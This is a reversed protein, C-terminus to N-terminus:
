VEWASPYFRRFKGDEWYEGGTIGFDTPGIIARKVINILGLCRPDCFHSRKTEFIYSGKIDSAFEMDDTMNFKVLIMKGLIM